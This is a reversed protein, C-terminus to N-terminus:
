TPVLLANTHGKMALCLSQVAYRVFLPWWYQKPFTAITVFTRSRFVSCTAFWILLPSRVTADFLTQFSTFDQAFINVDLSAPTPFSTFHPPPSGHLDTM